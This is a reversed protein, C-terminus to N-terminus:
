AYTGKKVWVDHANPTIDNYSQTCTNHGEFRRNFNALCTTFADIMKMVDMVESDGDRDRSQEAAWNRKDNRPGRSRQGSANKLAILNHCNPRIHGQLGCKHYFHQTRPGKQSKPFSKGKAESRVVSQNHPKNLVRQDTVNRKKEPKVKKAKITAVMPEKAKVFKVEKTINIASSSKGTYGLGTKDSFPKQHSLVEDLKKSSVRKVKANAQVVEVEIFKIKSYAKTLEENLTEIECKAEKYRVHLSRYDEEEKKLKKVAANAVKAYEDTKKLLSNYTEQLGM